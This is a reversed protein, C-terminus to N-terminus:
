GEWSRCPPACLWGTALVGLLQAMQALSSFHEVVEEFKWKIRFKFSKLHRKAVTQKCFHVRFIRKQM